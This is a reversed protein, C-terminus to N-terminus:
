NVTVRFACESIRGGSFSARCLVMTSGRSFASGSHPECSLNIAPVTVQPSQFNVVITLASGDHPVVIDAPCRVLAIPGNLTSPTTALQNPAESCGFFSLIVFGLQLWRRTSQHSQFPPITAQLSM